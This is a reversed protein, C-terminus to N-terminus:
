SGTGYFDHNVEAKYYSNMTTPANYLATLLYSRINKVKTTNKHLCELVYEILMKDYKEFRSQVVSKPLDQGSIRITSAPMAITEVMLEIIEDIIAKDLPYTIVLADYSVVERIYERINDLRDIVDQEQNEHVVTDELLNIPYNGDTKSKDTYNNNTYNPDIDTVEQLKSKLSRSTVNKSKKFYLNKVETTKHPKVAEKEPKTDNNKRDYPKEGNRVGTFNKVYIVDPKGLGRRQRKILGIGNKEDLESIIRIAKPKSCCLDEMINEITYIIYTRDNEDQWENKISLSMRDLMLGYLIKADSSLSKFYPDKILLRPIRYFSFMEAEKGYFYDFAMDRDMNDIGAKERNDSAAIGYKNRRTEAGM